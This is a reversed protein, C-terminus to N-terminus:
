VHGCVKPAKMPAGVFASITGGRKRATMRPLLVTRLRPHVLGAAQFFGPNRGAFHLPVITAGTKRALSAVMPTWPPDRVLRTKLDVSSVEGSPFVGMVHGEKLHRVSEALPKVNQRLANAGGFPNVFIFMPRMEPIADLFYNAMVKYDPRVQELIRIFAVGEIGGFPHNSVVVVPGTKPIKALDEESIELKVKMGALVAECFTSAKGSALQDRAEHIIRDLKPFGVAKEVLYRSFRNRFGPPAAKPNITFIKEKKPKKMDRPPFFRVEGGM